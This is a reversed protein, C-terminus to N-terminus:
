KTRISKCLYYDFFNQYFFIKGYFNDSSYIYEKIKKLFFLKPMIIPMLLSYVMISYKKFPIYILSLLTISIIELRIVPHLPFHFSSKNKQINDGKFGTKRLYEKKLICKSSRIINHSNKQLINSKSKKNTILSM